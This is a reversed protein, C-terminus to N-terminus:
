TAPRTRACSTSSRPCQAAHCREPQPQLGGRRRRIQPGPRASRGNQIRARSRRSRRPSGLHRRGFRRADAPHAPVIPPRVACPRSRRKGSAIAGRSGLDGALMVARRVRASAIGSAKALADVMVAELAGQRLEGAFLAILFEQEPATARAFMQQLLEQRQRQSGIGSTTSISELIRDVETLELAPIEAQSSRADRLAAYGVGIRGQRIAGSLFAVAIEIEDGHLERLLSALLDIKELRSPTERVRRSTEVVTALLM